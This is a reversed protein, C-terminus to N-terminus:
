DFLGAECQVDQGSIDVVRFGRRNRGADFKEMRIVGSAKWHDLLGQAEDRVLGFDQMMRRLAQREGTNHHEAWPRGAKWAADMEKLIAAAQDAGATKAGAEVRTPILSSLVGGNAWVKEFRYDEHWNDPADKQKECTLRGVTAGKKRDLKFVFDGAGLLVSSGRMQGERNAHHVGMVCCGFEEKLVDCARVFLTMEKQLNEDAGPMARSVTDVVILVVGAPDAVRERITDALARVQDAEMMNVGEPILVFRDQQDSPTKHYDLWTQLRAKFGQSGEGALYVVTGGPRSRIAHGHWSGRGLAIHLAQDLAIFSKGTGPDGYLFGVSQEPIHRDIMFVPDPRSLIDAISLTKFRRATRTAPPDEPFLPARRTAEAAEADFWVEARDFDSHKDAVEYIWPAGVKYPPKMRAWDGAAMDFNPAGERWRECWSWWLDFAEAAQEPPFAARIAYGYKVYSDRTPFLASTNPTAEVARRIMDPDGRLTEQPPADEAAASERILKAKPLKRELVHLLEHVADASAVPLAELPQLRSTWRYPQRTAPHIGSAVAQRGESLIEVRDSLTGRENLDGFEVRTYRVEDAVRVVYLAKPANGIRVPPAGFLKAVEHASIEAAEPDRTDADIGLLWTGDAQRGTKIGVGAGMDFWRDLDAETSEHKVWGFSRWLGDEGRIGVAKGRCGPNKSLSSNPSLEADPPVIPVLRRYGMDFLVRFPNQPPEPKPAPTSVAELLRRGCEDGLQERGEHRSINPDDM